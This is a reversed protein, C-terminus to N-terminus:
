SQAWSLVRIKERGNTKIAKKGFRKEEYTNM